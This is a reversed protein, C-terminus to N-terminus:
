WNEGVPPPELPGVISCTLRFGIFQDSRHPWGPVKSRAAKMADINLMLFRPTENPLPSKKSFPTPTSPVVPM